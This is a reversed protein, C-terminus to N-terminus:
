DFAIIYFVKMSQFLELNEKHNLRVNRNPNEKSYLLCDSILVEGMCYDDFFRVDIKTNKLGIVKGPKYIKDGKMRAWVILHPPSCVDMFWDDKINARQFCMSCMEIDYMERHCLSELSRVKEM